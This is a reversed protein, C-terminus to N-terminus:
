YYGFQYNNNNNSKIIIFPLIILFKENKTINELELQTFHKNYVFALFNLMDRLTLISNEIKLYLRKIIEKPMHNKNLFQQIDRASKFKIQKNRTIIGLSINNNDNNTAAAITDILTISLFINREEEEEEKIWQIKQSASRIDKNYIYDYYFKPWSKIFSIKMRNNCNSFDFISYGEKIYKLLSVNKEGEIYKESLHKLLSEEEKGCIVRLIPDFTKCFVETLSISKNLTHLNHDFNEVLCLRLSKKKIAKVLPIVEYLPVYTTDRITVGHYKEYLIGAYYQKCNNSKYTDLDNVKLFFSYNKNNICKNFLERYFQRLKQPLDTTTTTTALDLIYHLSEVMLHFLRPELRQPFGSLKYSNANKLKGMYLKKRIFIICEYIGDVSLQISKLGCEDALYKNYCDTMEYLTQTPNICKIFLSDTDGYLIESGFRNEFFTKARMLHHRGYATIMTAAIQDYLPSGQVGCIGYLSNVLIKLANALTPTTKRNLNRKEILRKCIYSIPCQDINVKCSLYVNKSDEPAFLPVFYEDWKEKKKYYKKTSIYTVYGRMIGYSLMINPYLSAFDVSGLLIENNSLHVGTIPELVTAGKYTGKKGKIEEKRKKKKLLLGANNNYIMNNDIPAIIVSQFQNKMYNVGIKTTNYHICDGPNLDALQSLPVLIQVIQLIANLKTVLEVDKINYIILDRLYNVIEDTWEGKEMLLYIQNIKIIDIKFKGADNSLLFKATVDISNSPPNIPLHRPFFRKRSAMTDISLKWPPAIDCVKDRLSCYRYLNAFLYDPILNYYILRKLLFKYDFNIINWGTIFIADPYTLYYLCKKLLEKESQCIIVNEDFKTVVINNPVYILAVNKVDEYIEPHSVKRVTVTQFVVSCLRDHLTDGTPFKNDLRATEIDFSTIKYPPFHEDDVNSTIFEIADEAAMNNNNCKFLGRSEFNGIRRKHNFYCQIVNKYNGMAEIYFYYYNLKLLYYLEEARTCYIFVIDGKNEGRIIQEANLERMILHGNNDSYRLRIDSFIRKNLSLIRKEFIKRNKTIIVLHNYKQKFNASLNVALPKYVNDLNKPICYFQFTNPNWNYIWIYHYDCVSSVEQISTEM